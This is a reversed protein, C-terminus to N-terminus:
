EDDTTQGPQSPTSPSGEHARRHWEDLWPPGGPGGSGPGGQWGYPPGYWRRRRSAVLLVIGGVVLPFVLFGPFFGPGRDWGDRDIVITRGDGDADAIVEAVAKGDDDANREGA